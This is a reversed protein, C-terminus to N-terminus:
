LQSSYLWIWTAQGMVSFHYDLSVLWICTLLFRWRTCHICNTLKSKWKEAIPCAVQFHSYYGNGRVYAYLHTFPVFVDEAVKPLGTNVRGSYHLTSLVDWLQCYHVRCVLHSPCEHTQACRGSALHRRCSDLTARRLSWRLSGAWGASLPAAGWLAVVTCEYLSTHHTKICPVLFEDRLSEEKGLHYSSALKLFNGHKSHVAKFSMLNYSLSQWKYMLMRVQCNSSNYYLM